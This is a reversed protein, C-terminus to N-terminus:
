DQVSKCIQELSERIDHMTAIDEIRSINGVIHNHFHSCVIGILISKFKLHENKDTTSHVTITQKGCKSTLTLEYTTVGDNDFTVPKVMAKGLNFISIM